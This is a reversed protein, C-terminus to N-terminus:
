RAQHSAVAQARLTAKCVNGSPARPLTSCFDIDSPMEIKSVRSALHLRLDRETVAIGRKLVVFAKPAQGRRKDGIGIVCVDDVGPHDRLAAEIRRPYILYGAAVIMDEIRDVVFVHGAVDVAGLDGTRLLGDVFADAAPTDGSEIIRVLQPATVVQPGGVCLEGREGPGVVRTLDSLDRVVVKTQPLARGVATPAQHREISGLAILAGVAEVAYTSLVPAASLRALGDILGPPRDWDLNIIFRLEAFHAPRLAAHAALALLQATNGVLITPRARRTAILLAKPTFHPLCILQAANAVALNLVATMAIPSWLPVLALIREQGPRLAPLSGALQDVAAASMQHTICAVFHEDGLQTVHKIALGSGDIAVPPASPSPANSQDHAAHSTERVAERRAIREYVLGPVLGAAPRGSGVMGMMRTATARWFPLHAASSAVIVLDVCRAALMATGNALSHPQDLIVIFRADCCKLGHALREANLNPDFLAIAAGCTHAAFTYIALAPGNPVALALTMGPALGLHALTKATRQVHRELQQYTHERGGFWLAPRRPLPQAAGSFRALMMPRTQLEIM